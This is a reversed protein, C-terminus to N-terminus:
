YVLNTLNTLAPITGTLQNSDVDFNELNTLGTLAPITGTLLNSYVYFDFLNTLTNLNAPLTGTLNNGGLDIGTVTTGAINCTVGFWTCETGTAGNWDTSITWTAGNTSTYLNLLVTREGAPIAAQVATTILALLISVILSAIHHPSLTRKM